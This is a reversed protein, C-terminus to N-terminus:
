ASVQAGALRRLARTLNRIDNDTFYNYSGTHTTVAYEHGRVRRISPESGHVAKYAAKYDNEIEM